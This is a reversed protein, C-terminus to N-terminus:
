TDSLGLIYNILSHTRNVWGNLFIIQNRNFTCINVFYNQSVLILKISTNIENSFNIAKLTDPGILGDPKVALIDQLEKVVTRIGKLVALDFIVSSLKESDVQDLKLADWYNKRYIDLVTNIGMLEVDEKSVPRGLHESLDKQTVGRNTPGGKDEPNDVYGGEHTLLLKMAKNFNSM